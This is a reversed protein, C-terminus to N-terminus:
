SALSLSLALTQSQNQFHSHDLGRGHLWNLFMGHDPLLFREHFRHLYMEKGQPLYIVPRQFLFTVQSLRLPLNQLQFLLGRFAMRRGGPRTKLGSPRYLAEIASFKPAIGRSNRNVPVREAPFQRRIRVWPNWM